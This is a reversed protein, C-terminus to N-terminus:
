ISIDINTILLLLIATILDIIITTTTAIIVVDKKISKYFTNLEKLIKAWYNITNKSNISLIIDLIKSKIIIIDRKIYNIYILYLQEAM